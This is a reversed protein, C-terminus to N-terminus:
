NSAQMNKLEEKQGQQCDQRTYSSPRFSPLACCINQQHLVPGLHLFYSQFLCFHITIINKKIHMNYILLSREFANHMIHMHYMGHPSVCATYWDLPLCRYACACCFQTILSFFFVICIFIKDFCQYEPVTRFSTNTKLDCVLPTNSHWSSTILCHHDLNPLSVNMVLSIHPM